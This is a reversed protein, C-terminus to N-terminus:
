FVPFMRPAGDEGLAAYNKGIGFCNGRTSACILGSPGANFLGSRSTPILNISAILASPAASKYMASLVTGIQKRHIQAAGETSRMERGNM